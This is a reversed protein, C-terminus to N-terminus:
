TIYLGSVNRIGEAQHTPKYYAKITVVYNPPTLVLKKQVNDCVNRSDNTISFTKGLHFLTTIVFKEM